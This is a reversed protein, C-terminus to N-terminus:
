ATALGTLTGHLKESGYDVGLEGYLQYREAAGNKGLEEMLLMGDPMYDKGPVPKTVVNVYAMDAFLISDAPMFRDYVVEWIGFDTYIQAISAGGITRDTPVFEYLKTLASRQFANAYITPRRFYAGAAAMEQLLEDVLGKSLAASSAAVTSTTCGTVIGKTLYTTGAGNLMTYELDRYIREQARATQFALENAVAAELPSATYGFHSSGDEAIKLRESSSMAAYTVVVSEQFIQVKNLEVARDYAVAVKATVSAAETIAPQAATEHAYTASMAYSDSQSVRRGAVRSLFPYEIASFTLLQAGQVNSVNGTSAYGNVTNNAM